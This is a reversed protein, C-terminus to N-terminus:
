EKRLFAVSVSMGPKWRTDGDPTRLKIQIAITATAPDVISAIRVVEGALPAGPLADAEVRVKQGVFIARIDREPVM